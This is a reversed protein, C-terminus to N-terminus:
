GASHAGDFIKDFRDQQAVAERAEEANPSRVSFTGIHGSQSESGDVKESHPQVPPATGAVGANPGIKM